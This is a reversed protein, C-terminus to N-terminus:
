IKELNGQKCGEILMPNWKDRIQFQEEQPDYSSM